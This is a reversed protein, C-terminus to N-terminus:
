NLEDVSMIGGAENFKPSFKQILHSELLEREKTGNKTKLPCIKFPPDKDGACIEIHRSIKLKGVNRDRIHQKHVTVRKRLENTQGIYEEECGSCKIVYVM